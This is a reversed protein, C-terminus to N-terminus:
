LKWRGRTDAAAPAVAEVAAELDLCACPGYGEGHDFDDLASLASLAGLSSQMAAERPMGATHRGTDVIWGQENCGAVVVQAVPSAGSKVPGQRRRSRRTRAQRPQSCRGPPRSEAGTFPRLQTPAQM